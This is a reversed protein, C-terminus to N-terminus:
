RSQERWRQAEGLARHVAEAQTAGRAEIRRTRSADPTPMMCTFQYVDGNLRDMQFSAVGLDQMLRHIATWDCGGDATRGAVGLQEPSPMAVPAPKAPPANAEPAQGRVVPPPLSGQATRVPAQAPRPPPQQRAYGPQPGYPAAAYPTAGYGPPLM